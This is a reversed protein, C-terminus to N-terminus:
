PVGMYAAHTRRSLFALPENCVRERTARQLGREICPAHQVGRSVAARKGWTQGVNPTARTLYLESLYETMESHTVAVYPMSNLLREGNWPM